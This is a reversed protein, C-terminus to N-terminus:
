ASERQAKQRSSHGPQAERAADRLRKRENLVVVYKPLQTSTSNVNYAISCQECIIMIPNAGVYVIQFEHDYEPCIKESMMIIRMKCLGNLM